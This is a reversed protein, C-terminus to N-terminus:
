FVGNKKAYETLVMRIGQGVSIGKSQFYATLLEYKSPQMRFNHQTMKERQTSTKKKLVRNDMDNNIVQQLSARKSAM